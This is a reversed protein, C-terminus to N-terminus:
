KKRDVQELIEDDDLITAEFHRWKPDDEFLPIQDVCPLGQAYPFGYIWNPITSIRKKM